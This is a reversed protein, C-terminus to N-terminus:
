LIGWQQDAEGTDQPGAWRLAHHRAGPHLPTCGSVLQGGALLHPTLDALIGQTLAQPAVLRGEVAPPLHVCHLVPGTHSRLTVRKQVQPLSPLMLFHPPEYPFISDMGERSSALGKSAM